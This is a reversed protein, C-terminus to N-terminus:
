DVDLIVNGKGLKAITVAAKPILASANKIILTGGSKRATRALEQLTVPLRKKADVVVGGGAQVIEKVTKPIM